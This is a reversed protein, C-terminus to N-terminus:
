DPEEDWFKEKQFLETIEVHLAKSLLYLVPVTPNREQREIASIMSKSVGSFKSLESQKMGRSKRTTELLYRIM